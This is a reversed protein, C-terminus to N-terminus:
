VEKFLGAKNDRRDEPCCPAKICTPSFSSLNCSVCPDSAEDANEYERFEYTKDETKLVNQSPSVTINDPM